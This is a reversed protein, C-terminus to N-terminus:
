FSYHCIIIGQNASSVQYLIGHIDDPVEGGGPGIDDVNVDSAIIDLDEIDVYVDIDFASATVEINIDGTEINYFGFVIQCLCKTSISKEFNL